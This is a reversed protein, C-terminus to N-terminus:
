SRARRARGPPSCDSGSLVRRPRRWGLPRRRVPWSPRRTRGGTGGLTDHLGRDPLYAGDHLQLHGLMLRTGNDLMQREMGEQLAALVILVAFAVAVAGISLVSRRPNRWLNRWGLRWVLALQGVM